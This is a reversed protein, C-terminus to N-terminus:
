KQDEHRDLPPGTRRPANIKRWSKILYMAFAFLVLIFGTVASIAFILWRWDWINETHSPLFLMSLLCVALLVVGVDFCRQVMDMNGKSNFNM